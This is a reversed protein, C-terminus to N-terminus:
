LKMIHVILCAVQKIIYVYLDWHVYVREYDKTTIYWWEQNRTVMSVMPYEM